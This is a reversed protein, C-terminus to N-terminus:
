FDIQFRVEFINLNGQDKFHTWVQNLMIRTASNLYWNLGLTIDSQEGGMINQSNLNTDTYRLAVEWAGIGKNGNM